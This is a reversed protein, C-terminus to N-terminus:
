APSGGSPLWWHSRWRARRQSGAGLTKTWRGKRPRFSHKEECDVVRTNEDDLFNVQIMGTPSGRPMKRSIAANGCRLEFRLVRGPKQVDPLRVREQQSHRARSILM